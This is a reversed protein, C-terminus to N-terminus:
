LDIASGPFWGLGETLALTLILPSTSVPCYLGMPGIDWMGSSCCPARFVQV